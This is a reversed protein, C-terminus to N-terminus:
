RSEEPKGSSKEKKEKPVAKTRPLMESMLSTVFIV